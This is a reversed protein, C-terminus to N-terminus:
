RELWLVLCKASGGAKIFESLDVPLVEYGRRTLEASLKRCGTNLVVSKGVVLVNAGFRLAEDDELEILDAFVETEVPM